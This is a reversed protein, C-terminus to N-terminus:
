AQPKAAKLCRAQRIGAKTLAVRDYRQVRGIGHTRVKGQQWTRDILGFASLRYMVGLPVDSIEGRDLDAARLVNKMM